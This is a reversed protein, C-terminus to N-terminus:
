MLFATGICIWIGTGAPTDEAVIFCIVGNISAYAASYGLCWFSASPLQYLSLVLALGDPLISKAINAEGLHGLSLALISTVNSNLSPLLADFVIM